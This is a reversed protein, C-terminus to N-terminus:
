TLIIQIMLVTQMIDKMIKKVRGSFAARVINVFLSSTKKIKILFLVGALAEHASNLFFNNVGRPLREYM